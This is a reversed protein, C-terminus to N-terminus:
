ANRKEPRYSDIESVGPPVPIAASVQRQYARLEDRESDTASGTRLKEYAWHTEQKVEFSAQTHFQVEFIQGSAPERWRSNVGKYEGESWSNRRDYREFGADTLRHCDALIGAAYREEPYVFTYRIADKVEAFADGASLGKFQMAESVKETLRDKGKLCHELGVLRRSPDEAEIRQMAPTVVKEEIERVRECGQDVAYTRYVDDVKERHEAFRETRSEPDERGTAAIRPSPHAPPTDLSNGARDGLRDDLRDDVEIEVDNGVDDDLRDVRM